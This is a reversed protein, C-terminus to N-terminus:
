TPSFQQGLYSVFLALCINPKLPISVYCDGLLSVFLSVLAYSLLILALGGIAYTLVKKGKAIRDENGGATMM